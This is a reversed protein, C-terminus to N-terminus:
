CVREPLSPIISSIRVNNKLFYYYEDSTQFDIIKRPINNLWNEISKIYEDSIQSLDTKKPIFQRIWRNINEVLGKEWSHYPNTFFININLTNELDKWKSFAIDNDTTISKVVQHKLMSIIMKNVYTNKRNKLKKILVKKTLKEVLVLLVYKNHKSVIFDMEWHGFENEMYPHIIARTTMTKRQKDQLYSTKKPKPGTKKNNRNWFLHRELSSRCKDIYKRIAKPSLYNSKIKEDKHKKIWGSISEPSQGTIIRKEIEKVLSKSQIKTLKLSEKKKWYQRVYAKHQAKDAKYEKKAKKKNFVMGRKIEESITSEGRNLRKAIEKQTINVELWNEIKIREKYILHKRKNGKKKEKKNIEKKM